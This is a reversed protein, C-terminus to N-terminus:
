RKDILQKKLKKITKTSVGISKALQEIVNEGNKLKALLEDSFKEKEEETFVINYVGM